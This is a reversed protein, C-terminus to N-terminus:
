CINYEEIHGSATVEVVRVDGNIFACKYYGPPLLSTLGSDFYLRTSFPVPSTTNTYCTNPMNSECARVIIGENAGSVRDSTMVVYSVTSSTMSAYYTYANDTTTVASIKMTILDSGAAPLLIGPKFITQLSTLQGAPYTITSSFWFTDNKFVEMIIDVGANPAYTASMNLSSGSSNFSGGNMPTDNLINIYNISVSGLESRRVARDAAGSLATINLRAEVETRKCLIRSTETFAYKQTFIGGSVLARLDEFTLAQGGQLGM